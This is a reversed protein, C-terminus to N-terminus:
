VPRWTANHHQHTSVHDTMIARGVAEILLKSSKNAMFSRSVLPWTMSISCCRRLLLVEVVNKLSMTQPVFSTM